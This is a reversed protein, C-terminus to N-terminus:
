TGAVVSVFCRNNPGWHASPSIRPLTGSPVAELGRGEERPSLTTTSFLSRIISMADERKMADELLLELEEVKRRYLGALKPDVSCKLNLRAGSPCRCASGNRSM